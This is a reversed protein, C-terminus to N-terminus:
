ENETGKFYYGVVFGFIGSTAGSLTSVLDKVSLVLDPTNQMFWNYVPAGVLIVAMLYFYWRVVFLAIKSRTEDKHKRPNFSSAEVKKQLDGLQTELETKTAM